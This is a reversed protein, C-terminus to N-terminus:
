SVRRDFRFREAQERLIQALDRHSDVNTLYDCRGKEPRKSKDMPFVLVLFGTLPQDNERAYGNFFEDLRVVLDQMGAQYQQKIEDDTM